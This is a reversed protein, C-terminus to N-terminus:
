ESPPALRDDLFGLIDRHVRDEDNTADIVRCREPERGAIELFGQRLREHFAQDMREYRDEGCSRARALGQAAPVDLIFTLDPLFDGLLLRHLQSILGASVGHGYGQYAMTSDHFRDCLVWKGDALAPRVVTEVHEMRAGYHLLLEARPTWRAADGSVLLARIDEAAPSGGPERTQHVAVGRAKLADGLRRMQSSKGAGEGGEFTIFRGPPPM